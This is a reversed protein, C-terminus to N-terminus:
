RRKRNSAAQIKEYFDPGYKKLYRSFSTLAVASIKVNHRKAIKQAVAYTRKGVIFTKRESGERPVPLFHVDEGAEIAKALHAIAEDYLDQVYITNGLAAGRADRMRGALDKFSQHMGLPLTASFNQRSRQHRGLKPKSLV